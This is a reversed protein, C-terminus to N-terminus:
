WMAVSEDPSGPEAATSGANRDLSPSARDRNASAPDAAPERERRQNVGLRPVAATLRRLEDVVQDGSQRRHRLQPLDRLLQEAAERLLTNKSKPRGAGPRRGGHGNPNTM